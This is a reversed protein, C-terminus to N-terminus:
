AVFRHYDQAVARLAVDDVDLGFGPRWEEVAFRGDANQFTSQARICNLFADSEEPKELAEVWNAGLGIAIQQWATCAAGVLSSDGIMVGAGFSQIRRALAVTEVLSGMCAPHLNYVRGMGPLLTQRAEWAPRAPYDPILDLAGVKKQLEVWQANALQAPDECASLGAAHLRGLQGALADLSTDRYGANADAVLYADPGVVTRVAQVLGIDLANDGFIKLKIHSKLGAELSKRAQEAAKRPEDELICFLGPVAERKELGLLEVSPVSQLRGAVDLLAMEAMELLAVSWTNKGRQELLHGLAAEVSLGQLEALRAGWDKVEVAPANRSSMQEGWGQVQGACLRLMAHRRTHWTDFSFHRERNVDIGYLEIGGIPTTSFQM